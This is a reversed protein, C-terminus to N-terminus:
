RMWGVNRTDYYAFDTSSPRRYKAPRTPSDLLASLTPVSGNHLYPATAWVGDLPPAQYGKHWAVGYPKGDPGSEQALWSRNIEDLNKQTFAGALVPDTGIIGLPVLKNPYKGDPGYAVQQVWDRHEMPPLLDAHCLRKLYRWEWGRLDPRGTKPLYKELYTETGAVNNALYEREAEAWKQRGALAGARRFHEATPASALLVLLLFVWRM